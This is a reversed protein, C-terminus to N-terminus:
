AHTNELLLTLSNEETLRLIKYTDSGDPTTKEHYEFEGGHIHLRGYEDQHEEGGTLKAVHEMARYVQM